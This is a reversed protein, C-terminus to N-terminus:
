TALLHHVRQIVNEADSEVKKVRKKIRKGELGSIQGRKSRQVEETLAQIEQNLPGVAKDIASM